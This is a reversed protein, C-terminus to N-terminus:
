KNWPSNPNTDTPDWGRKEVDNVDIKIASPKIVGEPLTDSEYIEVTTGKAINDYIWKSDKVALRICGKSALSGLKNYEEYELDNWNGAKDPKSYYPVSHFWYPGTIQVTYHGYVGGVLSLTEYKSITNFVGVPTGNGASAVFTKVLKTFEGNDDKEYVMVVNMTKNVKIYYKNSTNITATANKVILRFDKTTENGSEDKIVYQLEYTGTKSLDYSGKIEKTVDQNSNDTIKLNKYFDVKNNVNVTIDKVNDVEPPITDEVSLTFSKSIITDEEDKVSAELEITGVKSSDIVDDGNMLTGNEVTVYESLKHESNVEVFLQNNINIVAEKTKNELNKNCGTVVLLAIFLVVLIKKM